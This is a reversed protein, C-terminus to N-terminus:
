TLNRSFLKLRFYSFTEYFIKSLTECFRIRIEKIKDSSKNKSANKSKNKNKSM